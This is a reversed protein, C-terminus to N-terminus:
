TGRGTRRCTPTGLSILVYFCVGMCVCPLDSFALATVNLIHITKVCYYDYYYYCYIAVIIIVDVVFVGSSAVLVTYQIRHLWNWTRANFKANTLHQIHTHINSLQDCRTIPMSFMYIQYVSKHFTFPSVCVSHWPLYNVILFNKGHASNHFQFYSVM